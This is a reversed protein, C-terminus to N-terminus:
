PKPGYRALATRCYGLLDLDILEQELQEATPQKLTQAIELLLLDAFKDRARHLTQRVWSATVPKRLQSSLQEAMQTSRMKPQEVRLQLVAHFPKTTREQIGRLALWTRALLEQRWCQLFEDDLDIPQETRDAVDAGELPLPQQDRRRRRYYDAILNALVGKVFDRFRGRQPDAGRLDGRIFRLAFEQALEDAAEPDRLAGLLYRHVAPGYRQLLEKQATTVADGRGDHAQGV